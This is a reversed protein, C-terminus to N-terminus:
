VERKEIFDAGKQDYNPPTESPFVRDLRNGLVDHEADWTELDSLPVKVLRHVKASEDDLLVLEQRIKYNGFHPLIYIWVFYYLVCLGLRYCILWLILFPSTLMLFKCAWDLLVIRPTGFASMEVM